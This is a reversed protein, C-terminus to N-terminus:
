PKAKNIYFVRRGSGDRHIDAVEYTVSSAVLNDGRKPSWPWSGDDHATVVADFAVNSRANQGPQMFQENRLPPPNFDISGSFLFMVRSPDDEKRHNVTAGAKRAVAQVQVTDFLAAADTELRREMDTWDSM